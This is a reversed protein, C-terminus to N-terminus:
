RLRRRCFWSVVVLGTEMGIGGGGIGGGGIPAGGGGGLLGGFLKM